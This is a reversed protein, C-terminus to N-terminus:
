LYFQMRNDNLMTEYVNMRPSLVIAHWFYDTKNDIQLSTFTAKEGEWEIYYGKIESPKLNDKKNEETMLPVKKFLDYTTFYNNFYGKKLKYVARVTDNNHTIYYGTAEQASINQFIITFGLILLVRTVRIIKM